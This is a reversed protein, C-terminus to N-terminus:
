EFGRFGINLLGFRSLFSRLLRVRIVGSRLGLLRLIEALRLPIHFRIASESNADDSVISNVIQNDRDSLSCACAIPVFFSAFLRVFAENEIPSLQDM